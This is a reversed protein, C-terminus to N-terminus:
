FVLCIYKVMNQYMHLVLVSSLTLVLRWGNGNDRSDKLTNKTEFREEIIKITYYLIYSIMNSLEFCM